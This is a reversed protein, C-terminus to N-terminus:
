FDLTIEPKRKGNTSGPLVWGDEEGDSGEMAFDKASLKQRKLPTEPIEGEGKVLGDFHRKIKASCGINTLENGFGFEARGRDAKQANQDVDMHADDEVARERNTPRAKKARLKRPPKPSPVFAKNNLVAWEIEIIRDMRVAPMHPFM